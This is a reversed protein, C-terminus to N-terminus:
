TPSPTHASRTGLWAALSSDSAPMGSRTSAAGRELIQEEASDPWASRWPKALELCPRRTPVSQGCGCMRLLARGGAAQVNIMKVGGVGERAQVRGTGVVLTRKPIMLSVREPECEQQEDPLSSGEKAYCRIHPTFSPVLYSIRGVDRGTGRRGEAPAERQLPLQLCETTM